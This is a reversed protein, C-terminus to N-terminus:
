RLACRYVVFVMLNAWLSTSWRAFAYVTFGLRIVLLWVGLLLVVFVWRDGIGLLFGWFPFWM